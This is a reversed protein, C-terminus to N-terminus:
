TNEKNTGLSHEQQCCCWTESQSGGLDRAEWQERVDVLTIIESAKRKVELILWQRKSSMGRRSLFRDELRASTRSLQFSFQHRQEQRSTTLIIPNSTNKRNVPLILSLFLFPLMQMTWVTLRHTIPCYRSTTLATSSVFINWVSPKETIEVMKHWFLPHSCSLITWTEHILSMCYIRPLCVNIYNPSLFLLSFSIYVHKYVYM